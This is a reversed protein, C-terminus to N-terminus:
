AAARAMVSAAHKKVAEMSLGMFSGFAQLEGMARSYNPTEESDRSFARYLMWMTGAPEYEDLITIDGDAVCDAPITSMVLRATVVTSAHTRPYSYFARPDASDYVIERIETEGTMSHWDDAFSLLDSEKAMRISAGPTAGDAGMNCIPKLLMTRGSPLTHRTANAALTVVETVMSARPEIAQIVRQAENWGVLLQAPTYRDGGGATEQLIESVRNIPVSALM